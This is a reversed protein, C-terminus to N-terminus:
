ETVEEDGELLLMDSLDVSKERDGLYEKGPSGDYKNEKLFLKTPKYKHDIKKRKADSLDYYEHFYIGLLENYFELATDYM